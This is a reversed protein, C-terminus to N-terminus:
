GTTSKLKREANEAFLPVEAQANRSPRPRSLTKFLRYIPRPASRSLLGKWAEFNLPNCLLARLYWHISSLRSDKEDARRKYCSSKFNLLHYWKICRSGGYEKLFRPVILRLVLERRKDSNRSSISPQGQRYYILPEGLCYFPYHLSIRLWLDFDMAYPLAEDLFGIKELVERSVVASSMAPSGKLFLFKALNGYYEDHLRTGLLEGAPSIAYYGASCVGAHPYKAFVTMQKELKEPLWIDDADLFAIYRGRSRRIGVNRSASAGRNEQKIFHIRKDALHKAVIEATNDRSGDDVIILEWNGFTQGIVSQIAEAIYAGANYSPMIVSVTPQATNVSNVKGAITGVPNM